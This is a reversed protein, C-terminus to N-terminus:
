HCRAVLWAALPVAPTFAAAYRCGNLWNARGSNIDVCDDIRKQMLELEWKRVREFPYSGAALNRPENSLAPYPVLALCKAAVAGALAFLYVSAFLAPVVTGPAPTEQAAYALAAGAGSLLLTLLTNSERQIMDAVDRHGELNDRAAKEIYTLMAEDM